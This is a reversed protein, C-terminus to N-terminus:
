ADGLTRQRWEEVEKIMEMTIETRPTSDVQPLWGMENLCDDAQQLVADAAWVPLHLVKTVQSRIPGQYPDYGIVDITVHNEGIWEAHLSKLSVERNTWEAEFIHSEPDLGGRHDTSGVEVVTGDKPVSVETVPAEWREEVDERKPRLHSVYEFLLRNYYDVLEPVDFPPTRVYDPPIRRRIEMANRRAKHTDNVWRAQSDSREEKAM